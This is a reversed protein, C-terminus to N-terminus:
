SKHAHTVSSEFDTERIVGISFCFPSMRWAGDLASKPRECSDRMMAIANALHKNRMGSRSHLSVKQESAVVRVTSYVMQDAVAVSLDYGHDRETLHLMLDATATGGSATIYEEDGVFVNRVVKVEPVSEPFSDHYERHVAAKRGNFFGARM